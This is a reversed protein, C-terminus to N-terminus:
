NLVAMLQLNFVLDGELKRFCELVEDEITRECALYQTDCHINSVAFWSDLARSSPEALDIASSADYQTELTSPGSSEQSLLIADRVRLLDDELLPPVYIDDVYDEDKRELTANKIRLYAM